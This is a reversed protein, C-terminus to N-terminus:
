YQCVALVETASYWLQVNFLQSKHSVTVQKLEGTYNNICWQQPMGRLGTGFAKAAAEKAAWLGIATKPAFDRLLEIEAPTFAVSVLDEVQVYDLRQLDIGLRTPPSAVAAVVYGCSHTISVDPLSTFAALEPCTAIAKGERDPLIEIDVPALDIQYNEQGWQRLADKAAIRGLLWETRRSGKEPLNYWFEREPQNLVLHALVRQWIHWSDELFGEPFPNIRRSILGTETQLWPQSLFATAPHLRCQYYEHPVSFYRDCWGTLRAIVKGSRDLFDFSAETQLESVFGMKGRCLVYSGAALPTEYQEFATVRFPFVNFDTGFQESVWYGVLQGAADLLGADIQFEPQPIDRFFNDISIVKLDAEIGAQNWGRLHKVGQFRSGHFMGTRYLEEDSWRSTTPSNLQWPIPAPPPAFDTALKVTGEFVLHRAVAQHHNTQFLRVKVQSESEIKAEIGLVLEGRDLALWRYGRIDYIGVVYNDGGVLCVAAEALTEMSVTFPIVPLPILEPHRQSLQGGLTHDWLFIDQSLNFYRESSLHQTDQALIKGLLPFKNSFPSVKATQSNYFNENIRSQSALFEQMLEFHNQLLSLSHRDSNKSNIKNAFLSNQESIVASITPKAVPAFNAPIPEDLSAINTELQELNERTVTEVKTFTESQLNEPTEVTLKEQSQQSQQSETIRSSTTLLSTSKSELNEQNELQLKEKIQGAFEESLRMRPMNLNLITNTRKAPTTSVEDWNVLQLNRQQYLCSFNLNAGHVFLSALLNQLQSLGSQRQSNSAFALYEEQRLIDHVFGTLNSSPGVEVFTRIGQQYLNSITSWFKVQSSWQQAALQRIATTEQPFEAGTACSYLKTQGIGVELSYYFALFANSVNTFLPTHYARDFPLRSCIGGQAQLKETAIQIDESNGFLIAQNPCNYMALHLRGSFNTLIQEILEPNVAGVSLLAGKTISNSAVLDRYIQNLYRMKESLQERSNIKVTESAILAANEGTSHGVMVAAKIGLQNLLEYLAMSATFVTESALDMNFLQAQAQHIQESNLNIAPPPFIFSSPLYERENFTTDLFDFWERVQPFYLSLDALMNPYQSGEGPFLFATKETTALTSNQAYYIGNRTQFESQNTTSLKELTLTLKQQFDTLNSAAIAVRESGTTDQALTYAVNSLPTQPNNGLFEQVRRIKAILQAKNQAAFVLLETPFQHHLTAPKTTSYEELVAHANIGGFGFSNVGARRPIDRNGHIWPRPESNVYLPSEELGLEPNIEECLTPPLIKHYLALATKILSAAGAAPICHGIASKVSGIACDPLFQSKKGLLQTLSQIETRDGLPIGTGHAEILKVTEPNVNSASYAKELALLEGELLPAFLGLAKGDSSTGVGKIVAYIRDGDREADGLKKLVLIGLGEGLVTGDAGQAFPKIETRSLAGLQCFIMNIQPPTSAHVGGALVMECRDSLLEKIALDVAILSSACAADVIYNPGRLDLRNAIRGTIVNPVLGPAMEPTFPPLSAKLERRIKGKTEGDMQPLFQELLSLTQDVIQGHQLLTNYGRNIYTGRGLIIGTKERNFPKALYGADKLAEKALKLALFHDPEGGDVSNPMIGFELPDFQALDGLFGGKRTYIRDNEKAEPDFYPEAWADPADAIAKVKNLINQWYTQLDKAKPFLASMGVIAIDTSRTTSM